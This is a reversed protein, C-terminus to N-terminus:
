STTLFPQRHKRTTQKHIQTRTNSTTPQASSRLKGQRSCQKVDEPALVASRDTATASTGTAMATSGESTLEYCCLHLDTLITGKLGSRRMSFLRWITGKLGSRHMSFLRWTTGQLGSRRLSFFAVHKEARV